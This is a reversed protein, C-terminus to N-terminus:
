TKEDTTAKQIQRRVHVKQNTFHLAHTATVYAGAGGNVGAARSKGGAGWAKVVITGTNAPVTYTQNGGTYAFTSSGSIGVPISSTLVNLASSWPSWNGAGDRARVSMSYTTQPLLGSFTASTPVVTQVATDRRVEYGTVGVNDTPATWTLVFSNFTINAAALGAPAAPASTDAVIGFTVVANASAGGRNIARVTVPFNGATHVAGTIVGTAANLSLGPPLNDAEFRTPGNTATM